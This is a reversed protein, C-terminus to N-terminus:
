ARRKVKPFANKEVDRVAKNTHRVATEPDRRKCAM